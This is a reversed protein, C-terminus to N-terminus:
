EADRGELITLVIDVLVVKRRKGDSCQITNKAGSVYESLKSLRRAMEDAFWWLEGWEDSSDWRDLLEKLPM